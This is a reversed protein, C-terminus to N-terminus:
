VWLWKGIVRGNIHVEEAPLELTSYEKNRSILRVKPPDSYPVMEVRKVVLGFGDWVVFIGPPSPSRDQTDVMLREGPAFDPVMSDGYVTIIKIHNPTATTQGRLLDRPVRWEAIVREAETVEHVASNGAGARVDLEEIAWSKADRNDRTAPSRPAPQGLSEAPKLEDGFLLWQWTVSGGLLRAYREAIPRTMGRSGNEHSRYSSETLEHAQAFAAASDYGAEIRAQRLRQAPRQDIAPPTM